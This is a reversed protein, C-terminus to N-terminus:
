DNFGSTKAVTKTSALVMGSSMTSQLAENIAMWLEKKSLSVPRGDNRTYIYGSEPRTPDPETIEQAVSRMIPALQEMLTENELSHLSLPLDMKIEPKRKKPDRETELQLRRQSEYEELKKLLRDKAKSKIEEIDYESIAALKKIESAFKEAMQAVVETREFLKTAITVM